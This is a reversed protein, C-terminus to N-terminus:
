KTKEEQIEFWLLFLLNCLVHAKHSLGSEPDVGGDGSNEDMAEIHRKYAAWYRNRADDVLQWGNREGYKNLGYELVDLVSRQYDFEDDIMSILGVTEALKEAWVFRKEDRMIERVCIEPILDYPTKGEDDKRTYDRGSM